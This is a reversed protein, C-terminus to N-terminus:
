GICYTSIHLISNLAYKRDRVGVKAFLPKEDKKQPEKMLMPAYVVVNKDQTPLKGTSPRQKRIPTSTNSYRRFLVTDSNENTPSIPPAIMSDVAFSLQSISRPHKHDEILNEIKTKPKRESDKSVDSPTRKRTNAASASNCRKAKKVTDDNQNNNNSTEEDEECSFDDSGSDIANLEEQYDVGEVPGYLVSDTPIQIDQLSTIPKSLEERQKVVKKQKEKQLIEMEKQRQRIKSAQHSVFDLAAENSNDYINSIPEDESDTIIQVTPNCSSMLIQNSAKAITDYQQQLFILHGRPVPLFYKVRPTLYSNSTESRWVM